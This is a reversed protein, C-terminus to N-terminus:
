YSAFKEWLRAAILTEILEGISRNLGGVNRTVRDVRASTERINQTVLDVRAAMERVDQTVQDVRASMKDVNQTVQDVRVSLKDITKNTEAIIRDHEAKSEQFKKDTEQFMAWVTKFTLRKQPKRAQVAIAM